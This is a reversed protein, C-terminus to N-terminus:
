QRAPDSPLASGLVHLRDEDPARRQHSHREVLQYMFRNLSRGCRVCGLVGDVETLQVACAPCHWTGGVKYKLPTNDTQGAPTAFAELLLSQMKGTLM